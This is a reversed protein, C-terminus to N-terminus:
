LSFRSLDATCQMRGELGIQISLVQNRNEWGSWKVRNLKGTCKLPGTDAENLQQEIWKRKEELTAALDFKFKEELWRRIPRDFWTAAKGLLKHRTKLDFDIESLGLMGSTSDWIPKGSLLLTGAYKGSIHLQCNIRQAGEASLHLSDIQINKRVPGKEPKISYPLFSRNLIQSMSDYQLDLEMQIRFDDKMNPKEWDVPPATMYTQPVNNVVVPRARLGVSLDISDGKAELRNLRFGLPRIMLWGYAGLSIPRNMNSWNQILQPRLDIKGYEKEIEKKATVMEEWLGDMVDQTIDQNWICVKCPDIPKPAEPQISLQIQYRPLITLKNLFRVEVKRPGESFGCRCSPTWPSLIVGRVCVRSSGEMQYNGTFSLDLTQGVARLRLPSRWFKYRYRLDCGKQVWGNPYGESTFVTDVSREVWQYLPKLSMRLPINIESEASVLTQGWAGLATAQFSLLWLCIRLLKSM